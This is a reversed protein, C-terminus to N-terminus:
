SHIFILNSFPTFIFQIIIPPPSSPCHGLSLDSPRQCCPSPRLQLYFSLTPPCSCLSSLCPWLSSLCPWLSLPCPWLSWLCSCLNPLYSCPCPSSLSTTEMLSSLRCHCSPVPASTQIVWCGLEHWSLEPVVDCLQKYASGSFEACQWCQQQQNSVLM